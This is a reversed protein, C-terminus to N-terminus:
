IAKRADCEQVTKKNNFMRQICNKKTAHQLFLVLTRRLLARALPVAPNM